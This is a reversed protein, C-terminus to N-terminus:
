GRIIHLVEDRKMEMVDKSRAELNLRMKPETNSGRVNFWYDPYEFYVGDLDSFKDADAYKDKLATFIADMDEVVSNIEGSHFYKQYPAVLESLKKGHETIWLMVDVLMRVPMEFSGEEARYFYHGSSEGSFPSDQKIMQEKILSHGVRTIFPKGGAELIMDETAKGPRIDYGIPSGPYRKLTMQALVGRLIEPPMTNGDDMILFVRDGDGDTAIGFDAGHEVVAKQLEANNEDKLPDAEHAPFTGDLEFNLKILTCPLKEFLAAVDLAGMSTAADAVVTFPKISSLDYDKTQAAVLDDLVGDKHSETGIQEAETRYSDAVVMDRITYMGTDGSIPVAKARVMKFGNYEAPNHSASVQLGGDYGYHGVAFYFTPTSSLGINVVNVGTSTIGEIVSQMLSESSTRMDRSVVVTLVRDGETENLLLTAFAAGTKRAIDEDLDTPYIGRVDYAKFISPNVSAM